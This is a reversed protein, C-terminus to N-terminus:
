DRRQAAVVRDRQNYDRIIEPECLGAATFCETVAAAQTEGIECVLWGGPLLHSPAGEAIRRVLDLGDVGAVLAGAPEHNRIEPPLAAFEADTVYPPNATILAFRRDGVPAFLDGSLFRVTAGTGPAYRDRNREAWSLADPSIDTAVIEAEPLEGALALAIAGSGTCLDLIPGAGPYRDLAVEVLRETEPRPILVGPGVLLEGKFFGASGTIYQLPEGAARRRLLQRLVTLEREPLPRDFQLYLGLRQPVGLGHAVLHEAEVRPSPVGHRALYGRCHNLIELLTKM